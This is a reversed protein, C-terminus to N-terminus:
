SSKDPALVTVRAHMSPHIECHVKIERPGDLAVQYRGGPHVVGSDFRGDDATFTHDLKGRNEFVLPDGAKVIVHDELYRLEVAAEIGPPLKADADTSGNSDGGFVDGVTAAWIVVGGVVIAAVTGAIVLKRKRSSGPAAGDAM